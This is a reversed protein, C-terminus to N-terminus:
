ANEMREKRAASQGAERREKRWEDRATEANTLGTEMIQRALIRIARMTDGDESFWYADGALREGFRKLALEANERCRRENRRENSHMVCGVLVAAVGAAVALVTLAGVIMLFTQM